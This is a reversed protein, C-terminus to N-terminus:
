GGGSIIDLSFSVGHTYINGFIPKFAVEVINQDIRVSKYLNGFATEDINQTSILAKKSLYRSIEAIEQSTYIRM